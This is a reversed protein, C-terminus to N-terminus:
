FPSHLGYPESEIVSIDDFYIRKKKKLSIKAM